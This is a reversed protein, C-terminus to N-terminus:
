WIKQIEKEMIKQAAEEGRGRFKILDLYTQISSTVPIDDIVKVQYLIGDDYPKLLNLNAGSSVPKLKLFDILSDIDDNVYAMAKQYRVMPAFRAAASFGALAFQIGLKKGAEGLRYEIESTDFMTYFDYSENKAFKYNEKWEELLEFPKSLSFGITQVSIWERDLLLEKVKAIQGFSVLSEKALEETKWEKPGNILLVRLIREAKPSFLSRLYKKDSYPNPKGEKQIFVKEFSIHCNGAFDVFGIGAQTCIEASKPSIYPAILIGYTNQLDNLARLLQNVAQRAYRPEGNNKVEIVFKRPEGDITFYTLFDYPDDAKTLHDFRQEFEIFSINKLCEKLAFIAKQEFNSIKM